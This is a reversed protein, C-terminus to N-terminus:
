TGRTHQIMFNQVCEALLPFRKGCVPPNSFPIHMNGHKENVDRPPLMVPEMIGNHRTMKGINRIHNADAPIMYRGIKMAILM